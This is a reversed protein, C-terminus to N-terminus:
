FVEFIFFYIHISFFSPFVALTAANKHPLLSLVIKKLQIKKVNQEMDNLDELLHM